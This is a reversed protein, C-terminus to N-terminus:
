VGDAESIAAPDTVNVRVLSGLPSQSTLSVVEILILGEGSPPIEAAVRGTQVADVPWRAETGSAEPGPAVAGEYM